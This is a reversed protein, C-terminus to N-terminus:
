EGGERKDFLNAVNSITPLDLGFRDGSPFYNLKAHENRIARAIIQEHIKVGYCRDMQLQRESRKKKTPSIKSM